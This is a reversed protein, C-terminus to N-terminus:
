LDDPADYGLAAMAMAFEKKSVKGDGDSDWDRFLAIIRVGNQKLLKNLQQQVSMWASAKLTVSPPLVGCSKRAQTTLRPSPM